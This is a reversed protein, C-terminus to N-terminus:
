RDVREINPATVIWEPHKRAIAQAALERDMHNKSHLGEFIDPYLRKERAWLTPPVQFHYSIKAGAPHLPFDHKGSPRSNHLRHARNQRLLEDDRVVTKVVARDGEVHVARLVSGDNDLLRM